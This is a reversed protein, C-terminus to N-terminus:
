TKIEITGNMLQEVFARDAPAFDFKDLEHTFVWRIEESKFGKALWPKFL